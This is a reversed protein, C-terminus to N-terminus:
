SARDNLTLKFVCKVLTVHTLTIVTQNQFSFCHLECLRMIGCLTLRLCKPIKQSAIGHWPNWSIAKSKSHDACKLACPSPVIQAAIHLSISTNPASWLFIYSWATITACVFKPQAASQCSQMHSFERAAHSQGSAISIPGGDLLPLLSPFKQPLFSWLPPKCWWISAYWPPVLDCIRQQHSRLITSPSSRHLSCKLHGLDMNTYLRPWEIEWNQSSYFSGGRWWIVENIWTEKLM